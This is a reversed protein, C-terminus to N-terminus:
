QLQKIDGNTELIPHTLVENAESNRFFLFIFLLCGTRLVEGEIGSPKKFITRLPNDKSWCRSM